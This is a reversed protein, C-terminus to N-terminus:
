EVDIAARRKPKAVERRKCDARENVTEVILSKEEQSRIELPCVVQIPREIIHEKYRLPVGRVM